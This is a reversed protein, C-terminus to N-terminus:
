GEDLVKRVQRLLEKVRFPKTVFGKAGMQITEKVSADGSFGSAILVKANSDVKLLERLCETGGMEPMIIDLVVLSIQSREWGFLHLAERGNAAQLVTYGHKTLIRTGLERVLDEDDVLLITETGFAPMISTTEVDTEEEGEIASLYVRFTTGKGVESCVTIHGNHQKVIGYVMALGLGTGRGMEKTTFFPEFIHEVTEKDMGHGTDSVELVIYEGPTAEVHLSCYEEDLTVIDTRVTLKGKDPMADRANVALNMLVQEIQSPDANVDPLDSSLDLRVDIMKPITHRLLKEVQVIQKNLNMPVPKPESKRSFMLLRKVLEAGGQAAHFIKQLDAYEPHKRDKEALLLESFGQVVTLLNNFDHAIGGALTGIAEMKQAQLLQQQLEVESTVNREWAVFNVIKGKGDRVPSITRDIHYLTGDKRRGTTRGSWEAGGALSDSLEQYREPNLEREKLVPAQCGIVEERAYGTIREYAPNVYEVNGKIDTIIVGDASQEIATALRRQMRELRKRKSVDKVWAQVAPRDDLSVVKASVEGEFLAGDKRQLLVEYQPTVNEGRMRAEARERTIQQYKGYYVRWHEMGELEGPSYGLMQCLRSNAFIIKGDQQIFIGDFSNEILSRHCEESERLAEEAKKRETIDLATFTVGLSMDSLDIPSSSLIVNIVEGDKRRWRTEVSGKGKEAIQEYKKRGVFDFDEETAYVLRSNKDLLEQRSYGTMQCFHDNVEKIVRNVVVGIGAPAARFISELKEKSQRLAEQVRIAEEKARLTGIGYSLDQALESLLEREEDDFIGATDSCISIGGWVDSGIVLPLAFASAFGRGLAETRWPECRSDTRIDQLLFPKGTRIAEGMPCGGEGSEDWLAKGLESLGEDEGWKAMPLVSKEPNPERSGVWVFRYGGVEVLIRCVKRILDFESRARLLAQNCDSLARLSRNTRALRRELRSSRILANIHALLVPPEVPQTLYGDAGGDLGNVTAKTDKYTASLHLIPIAQTAPESKLRRCVEFGNIDPLNVDLLVLDPLKMAQKLAEAGTPAEMVEFGAQKLIRTVSYRGAENDDVNLIRARTMVEV